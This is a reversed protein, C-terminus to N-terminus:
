VNLGGVYKLYLDDFVTSIRQYFETLLGCMLARMQPHADPACRREFIWMWERLNATMIISTKLSNPLVGRALQPVSGATLMRKYQVELNEMTERWIIYSLSLDTPLGGNIFQEHDSYFEIPLIFQVDKDGYNCYRTSEQNFSALRHRVLEHTVGRDTIFEVRVSVQEFPTLHGHKLLMQIFKRSDDSKPESQYCIRAAQEIALLPERDSINLIRANQKIIQM